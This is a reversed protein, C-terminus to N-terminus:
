VFKLSPYVGFYSTNNKSSAKGNSIRDKCPALNSKTLTLLFLDKNLLFCRGVMTELDDGGLTM